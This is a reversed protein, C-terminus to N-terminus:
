PSRPGAWGHVVYSDVQVRMKGTTNNGVKGKEKGERSVQRSVENGYKTSFRLILVGIWGAVDLSRSDDHEEAEVKEEGGCDSM